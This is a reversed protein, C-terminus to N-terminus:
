RAHGGFVTATAAKATPAAALHQRGCDDCPQVPVPLFNGGGPSLIGNQAPNATVCVVDIRRPRKSKKCRGM